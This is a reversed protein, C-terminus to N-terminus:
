VELIELVLELPHPIYVVDGFEFHSDTPRKNFFAIIWWYNVDGYEEHALKFMRDGTKWVAKKMNLLSIVEEDPYFFEPTTYQRIGRVGRNYLINKYLGSSNNSIDRDIYRDTAM